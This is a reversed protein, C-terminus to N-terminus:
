DISVLAAEYPQGRAAYLRQTVEIGVRQQLAQVRQEWLVARQGDSLGPQVLTADIGALQADLDHSVAAIAGSAVREDRAMELLRELQASQAYLPELDIEPEVRASAIATTDARALTRISRQSPPIAAAHRPNARRAAHTASPAAATPAPERAPTESDAPASAKSASAVAASATAPPAAPTRLVRAADPQMKLPLAIALALSAAVALGLPWRASAPKPMPLRAQLRQWGGAEPVAHPLAAFADDWGFADRPASHGQQMSDGADPM